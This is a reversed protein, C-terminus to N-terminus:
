ARGLVWRPRSWMQWRELEVYGMRRYFPEGGASAYLVSTLAGEGRAAALASGLARRGYGRGRADAATAMSWIAVAEEVRVAALGSMLRGDPAFAGWIGLGPGDVARAPMALASLQPSTDFAEGVLAQLSPLDAAGLRRAGAGDDAPPAPAQALALAMLPSSGICVWSREVLRQVEGLAPGCVMLVAPLRAEIIREVAADLEGGDGHSVVVNYDVSAAGSFATWGSDQATVGADGAWLRASAGLLRRLRAIDIV